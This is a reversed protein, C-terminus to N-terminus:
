DATVQTDLNGPFVQTAPNVQTDQTVLTVARELSDVTVARVLIQGQSDVSVVPAM